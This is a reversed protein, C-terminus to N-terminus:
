LAEIFASTERHLVKGEPIENGVVFQFKVKEGSDLEISADAKPLVYPLLKVLFAIRDVESLNALRDPLTRMEQTVVSKLVERVERTIVNPTGKSRSM